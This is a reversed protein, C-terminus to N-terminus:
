DTDGRGRWRLLPLLSNYDDTWLRLGKITDIPSTRMRLAPQALFSQDRTVLVWSAAYEDRSDDDDSEILAAHLGAHDAEQQVVTELALYRNSVHFAIIGGPRLHRLYLDVAQATLLHVPIADGSFADVLLVDYNQPQESALSIRADGPVIEVRAHSDSLYTFQQHAMQEVLPNIEYFRFVDGARGYAALTGAGLGIVGVRQAAGSCCLSLALGAGSDRAYYTTPTYRMSGLLWQTGHEITGNLLHRVLGFDGAEETVRLAGYFNRVRVVSRARYEHVYRVTTACVALTATLWLVRWPLAQKWTTILALVATVLLACCLEYDGSFVQPAVIAVFFSGIAGGAAICLYFRTSHEASPRLRYVEGHAFTCCVLLAACFLPISVNLGLNSKGSWLLYGLAGLAAVLLLLVFRRPYRRGGHFTLMFSLLYVTLPAIWLLPIAAINQSLYGTVASLLASGCAALAIWLVIRTTAPVPEATSASESEPARAVDDKVKWTIAGCVILYILLGGCWAVGQTHLTARPEIVAPYSALAVLSGFNSLVFLRYPSHLAAGRAYSRAYWAQLLPGSASLALFPVGIMRALLLLVSTAPHLLDPHLPRDVDLSFALGTALIALYALTQRYTSLRSVLWHALSYGLLLMTQFFVLCTTWVAASGGLLPVLRKAAMPEILFLLCSSWFIAFAYLTRLNTM